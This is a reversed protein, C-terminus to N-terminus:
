VMVMEYASDPIDLNPNWSVASSVVFAAAPVKEVASLRVLV